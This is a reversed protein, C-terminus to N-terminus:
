QGRFVFRASYGDSVLEPGNFYVTADKWIGGSSQGEMFILGPAATNVAVIAPNCAQGGPLAFPIEGCWAPMIFAGPNYTRFTDLTYPADKVCLDGPNPGVKLRQYRCRVKTAGDAMWAQWVDTKPSYGADPFYAHDVVLNDYNTPNTAMEAVPGLYVYLNWYGAGTAALNPAPSPVYTRWALGNLRALPLYNLGAYGIYPKGGQGSGDGSGTKLVVSGALPDTYNYPWAFGPGKEIAASATNIKAFQWGKMQAATVSDYPKGDMGNAGPLGMSGPTGAEGPSGMPGPIGPDGKDGKVTAHYEQGCAAFTLAAYVSLFLNRHYSSM